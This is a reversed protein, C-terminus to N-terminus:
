SSFSDDLLSAIENIKEELQSGGVVDDFSDSLLDMWFEDEEGRFVTSDFSYRYCDLSDSSSGSYSSIGHTVSSSSSYSQTNKVIGEKMDNSSDGQCQDHVFHYNDLQSSMINENGLTQLILTSCKTNTYYDSSTSSKYTKTNNSIDIDNKFKGSLIKRKLKTNWYNKVDNDTRGQLHSAIISWRYM